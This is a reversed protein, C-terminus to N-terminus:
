RNQLAVAISAPAAGTAAAKSAPVPWPLAILAGVLVAAAVLRLAAIDVRRGTRSLAARREMLALNRYHDIDITGNTRRRIQLTQTTM